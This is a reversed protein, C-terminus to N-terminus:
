RASRRAFRDRFPRVISEGPSRDLVAFVVTEFVQAYRGAGILLGAFLGAVEAPEIKFVGCGWAGLVLHRYGHEAAIALVMECRRTMTPRILEVDRPQNQHVAGANAAPATLFSVAYPRDLLWGADDRFVPVQPSLIM